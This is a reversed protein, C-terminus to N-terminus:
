VSAGDYEAARRSRDDETGEDDPTPRIFREQHGRSVLLAKSKQSIDDDIGVESLGLSVVLQYHGHFLWM